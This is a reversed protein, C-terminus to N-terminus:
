LYIGGGVSLFHYTPTAIKLYEYGITIFGNKKHYRGKVELQNVPLGNINSLKGCSYISVFRMIFVETSLGYAFGAQQVDNAIYNAGLTFGINFRELRIRDYCFELNFLNLSSRKNNFDDIENLLFVNSQLYFYQFPRINIKLHNGFLYDHSYLFQNEIDIRFYKPASMSDPNIYNGSLRREYPYRTLKNSLHIESKYNGVFVYYIGYAIGTSIGREAQQQLVGKDTPYSTSPDQLYYQNNDAGNKLEEKSEDLKGQAYSSFFNLFLVILVLVKTYTGIILVNSPIPRM